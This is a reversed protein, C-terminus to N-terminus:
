VKFSSGCGCTHSAMPNTFRFGSHVLDDSYDVQLGDLYLVSGRDSVVRLGESDFVVEDEEGLTSDIGAYYTMGSCGGPVVSIRLFNEGGVGLQRLEQNAKASISISM